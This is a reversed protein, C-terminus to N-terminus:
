PKENKMTRCIAYFLEGEYYDCSNIIKHFSQLCTIGPCVHTVCSGSLLEQHVIDKSPLVYRGMGMAKLANRDPSM